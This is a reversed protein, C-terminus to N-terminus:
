KFYKKSGTLLRIPFNHRDSVKFLYWKFCTFICIYIYIYIYSRLVLIYIHYFLYFILLFVFNLVNKWKKISVRIQSKNSNWRFRDRLAATGISLIWTVKFGFYVFHYFKRLIVDKNRCICNDKDWHFVSSHDQYM